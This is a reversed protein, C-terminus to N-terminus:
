KGTEIVKVDEPKGILYPEAVDTFHNHSVVVGNAQGGIQVGVPSHEIRNDNVVVDLMKVLGKYGAMQEKTDASPPFAVRQNYRLLNGKVLAARIGPIPHPAVENVM